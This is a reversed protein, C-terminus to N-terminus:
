RFEQAYLRLGADRRLIEHTGKISKGLTLLAKSFSKEGM